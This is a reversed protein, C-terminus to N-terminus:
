IIISRNSIYLPYYPLNNNITACYYSYSTKTYEFSLLQPKLYFYKKGNKLKQFSSIYSLNINVPMQLIGELSINSEYDIPSTSSYTSNSIEAATSYNQKIHVASVEGKTFFSFLLISFLAIINKKQQM